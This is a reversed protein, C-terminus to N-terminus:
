NHNFDLNFEKQISDKIARIVGQGISEFIHKNFHLGRFKGQSAGSFSNELTFSNKINFEKHFVIRASNAKEKRFAFLCDQIRVVDCHKIFAHLFFNFDKDRGNFETAPNGYLFCNMKKSHSHVDIFFPIDRHADRLERIFRKMAYITPQGSKSPSNYNRNLDVFSM